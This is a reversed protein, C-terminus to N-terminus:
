DWESIIFIKAFITSTRSLLQGHQKPSSMTLAMQGLHSTIPCPKSLEAIEDM